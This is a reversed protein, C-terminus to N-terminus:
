VHIPAHGTHAIDTPASPLHTISGVFHIEQPVHAAIQGTFAIAGSIPAYCKCYIFLFLTLGQKKKQIYYFKSKM